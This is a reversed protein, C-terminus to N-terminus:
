LIDDFLIFLGNFLKLGFKILLFPVGVAPCWLIFIFLAFLLGIFNFFLIKVFLLKLFGEVGSINMLLDIVM